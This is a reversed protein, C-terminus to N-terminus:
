HCTYKGWCVTDIEKLDVGTHNEQWSHLRYSAQAYRWATQRFCPSCSIWLSPQTCPQEKQKQGEIEAVWSPWFILPAAPVPDQLPSGWFHTLPLSVGSPFSLYYTLRHWEKLLDWKRNGSSKEWKLYFSCPKNWAVLWNKWKQQM